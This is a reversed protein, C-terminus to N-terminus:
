PIELIRTTEGDDYVVTGLETLLSENLGPFQSREVQGIFIYRIGYKRILAQVTEIDEGMYITMVDTIRDDVVQWNRWLIEHEFWNLVTPLGTAVSVRGCETFSNGCAELIVPRGEANAMLWNVADKDSPFSHELFVSADSGARDKPDLLNGHVGFWNEVGNIFYGGTFLLILIGIVPVACAARRFAKGRHRTNERHLALARVLVYGMVMGFLIFAQYTLKFMTNTRYFEGEYLDKIYIVEPLWVLGMACAAFIGACLDPLPLQRFFSLIGLFFRAIAKGPKRKKVSGGNEEGTETLRAERGRRYADLVLSVVYCVSVTVPLGWLILLQWLPTHSHTPLIESAIQDFTQTFPLSVALGILFMVIGQCLTILLFRRWDGEYLRLNVFFVVTGCVVFYIPFDWFNTWRFLGTLAGFLLVEPALVARPFGSFLRIKGAAAVTKKEATMRRGWAYAIAVALVALILNIFHAHLDGLISSYAPFETITKDPADPQYGIFRTSNPFFYNYEYVTGRIRHWLPLLVGYICYHFNGCFAVAFGALVGGANEAFDKTRFRRGSRRDPDSVPEEVADASDARLRDRLMQSVLSFPLMFSLATILARMMTYGEGPGLHSLRILYAILFQGGYYYNVTEPAFWPDMFPMYDSRLIATIFGYDMFKETGYADPYFGIIYVWLALLLFFVAEEALVRKIPFSFGIKGKKKRFVFVLAGVAAPILLAAFCAGTRFKLLHLVNCLWMVYGGTVLGLPKSFLWGRDNWDRFLLMSLPLYLAGIVLVTLYWIFFSLM